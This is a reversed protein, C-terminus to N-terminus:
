WWPHFFVWSKGLRHMLDKTKICFGRNEVCLVMTENWGSGGGGGYTNWGATRVSPPSFGLEKERHRM